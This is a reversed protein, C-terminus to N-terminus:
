SRRVLRPTLFGVFYSVALAASSGKATHHV